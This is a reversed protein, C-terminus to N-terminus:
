FVDTTIADKFNATTDITSNTTGNSALYIYGIHIGDASSLNIITSYANRYGGHCPYRGVEETLTNVGAARYGTDYLYQAFTAYTFPTDSLTVVNVWVRINSTIISINHRYRKVPHFENDVASYRLIEGDTPQHDINIFHGTDVSTDAIWHLEATTQRSNSTVSSCAKIDGATNAKYLGSIGFSHGIHGMGFTSTSWVSPIAIGNDTLNTTTLVIMDEAITVNGSSHGILTCERGIQSFEWNFTRSSNTTTFKKVVEVTNSNSHVPSSKARIATLESIPTSENTFYTLNFIANATGTYTFKYKGDSQKSVLAQGVIGGVNNACGAIVREDNFPAPVNYTTTAGTSATYGQINVAKGCQTVHIYTFGASTAPSLEVSSYTADVKPLLPWGITGTETSTGYKDGIAAYLEPYAIKDFPSGDCVLWNDPVEDTGFARIDGIVIDEITTHILSPRTRIIYVLRLAPPQVTNSKGYLIRPDNEPLISKEGTVPDTWVQGKSADLTIGVAMNATGTVSMYKVGNKTEVGLAGSKDKASDWQLIADTSSQGRTISGNINPLGAPEYHGPSGSSDPTGMIFRDLLNPLRFEDDAETGVNYKTGIVHFLDAFDAKKLTSGDCVHWYETLKSPDGAYAQIDGVLYDKDYKLIDEWGVGTVTGSEDKEEKAVYVHDQLLGHEVSVPDDDELTWVMMTHAKKAAKWKKYQAIGGGGAAKWVYKPMPDHIDPDYGPDDPKLKDENQISIYIMDRELEHVEDEDAIFKMVIGEKTPQYYADTEYISASELVWANADIDYKIVDQDQPSRQYVPMPNTYTDTIYTLQGFTTSGNSKIIGTDNAIYAGTNDGTFITHETKNLPLGSVIDTGSSIVSSSKWSVTVENGRQYAFRDVQAVASNWTLTSDDIIAISYQAASALTWKGTNGDFVLTEGDRPAHNYYPFMPTYTNTVYSGEFAYFRGSATSSVQMEFKGESTVRGEGTYGNNTVSIYAENKGVTNELPKPLGKWMVKYSGDTTTSIKDTLGTIYVINGCQYVSIVDNVGDPTWGSDPTVQGGSVLDVTEYMFKKDTALWKQSDANWVLADGSQAGRVTVDSLQRLATAGGTYTETKKARIYYALEVSAPQVTDSNGYIDNSKSANFSLTDIKIGTYPNTGANAFSSTELDLAGTNSTTAKASLLNLDNISGEIDPLGAEHETGLTLPNGNADFEVGEVFKYQLDPVCFTSGAVGGYTIGIATYLDPYDEVNYEHGDCPLWTDNGPDATFIRIDGIVSIEAYHDEVYALAPDYDKSFYSGSVVFSKHKDDVDFKLNGSDDLYVIATASPNEKNTSSVFEQPSIPVPMSTAITVIEESVNDAYFEFTINNGHRRCFGGVNATKNVNVTRIPEPELPTFMWKYAGDSAKITYWGAENKWGKEMEYAFTCPMVINTKKITGDNWKTVFQEPTAIVTKYTEVDTTSVIDLAVTYNYDTRIYELADTAVKYNLVIIDGAHCTKPNDSADTYTADESLTLYLFIADTLDPHAAKIENIMTNFKTNTIEPKCRGPIIINAQDDYGSIPSYIYDVFNGEEDCVAGNKVYTLANTFKHNFPADVNPAGGEETNTLYVRTGENASVLYDDPLEILSNVQNLSKLDIM